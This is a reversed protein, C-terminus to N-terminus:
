SPGAETAVDFNIPGAQVELVDDSFTEVDVFENKSVPSDGRHVGFRLECWLCSSFGIPPPEETMEDNSFASPVRQITAAAIKKV